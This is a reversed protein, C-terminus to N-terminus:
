RLPIFEETAKFEWPWTFTVTTMLQKWLEPYDYIKLVPTNWEMNWEVRQTDTNLIIHQPKLSSNWNEDINIKDFKIANTWIGAQNYVDSRFWIKSLISKMNDPITVWVALEEPWSKTFLIHRQLDGDTWTLIAQWTQYIGWSTEDYNNLAFSKWLKKNAVGINDWFTKYVEYGSKQLSSVVEWPVSWIDEQSAEIDSWGREFFRIDSKPMHIILNAIEFAQKFKPAGPSIMWLFNDGVHVWDTESDISKVSIDYQETVWKIWLVTPFYDPGATPVTNITHVVTSWDLILYEVAAWYVDEPTNQEVEVVKLWLRKASESIEKPVHIDEVNEKSNKIENKLALEQAKDWSIIEGEEAGLKQDLEWIAADRAKQNVADIALTHNPTTPWWEANFQTEFTLPM